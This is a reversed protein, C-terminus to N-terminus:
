VVVSLNSMKVLEANWISVIYKMCEIDRFNYYTQSIFYYLYKIM